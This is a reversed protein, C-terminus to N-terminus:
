DEEVLCITFMKIVTPIHMICEAKEMSKNYVVEIELFYDEGIDQLITFETWYPWENNAYCYVFTDGDKAAYFCTAEFNGSVPSLGEKIYTIDSGKRVEIDSQYYNVEYAPKENSFNEDHVYLIARGDWSNDYYWDKDAPLAMMLECESTLFEVYGNYEWFGDTLEVIYDPAKDTVEGFMRYLYDPIDVEEEPEFYFNIDVATDTFTYDELTSKDVLLSVGMARMIGNVDFVWTISGNPNTAGEIPYAGILADARVSDLKGYVYYCQEGDFSDVWATLENVADVDHYISFGKGMFAPEESMVWAGTSEITSEQRFVTEKSGNAEAYTLCEYYTEYQGLKIQQSERLVRKGNKVLHYEENIICDKYDETWMSIITMQSYPLTKYEDVNIALLGQIFEQLMDPELVSVDILTPVKSEEEEPKIEPIPTATPAVSPIATPTLEVQQAVTPAVSPPISDNTGTDTQGCACLVVSCVTLLLSLLKKSKM